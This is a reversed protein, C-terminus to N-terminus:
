LASKQVRELAKSEAKTLASHRVPCAMELISRVQKVYSDVLQDSPCNLSKLRKIIWLRSYCKEVIFQTNQKWKLDSTLVVGLLKTEEVMDIRTENVYLEPQIDATRSKNFLMLKTKSCNIRM